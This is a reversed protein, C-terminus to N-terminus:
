SYDSQKLYLQNQCIWTFEIYFDAGRFSPIMQDHLLIFAERLNYLHFLYFKNFKDGIISFSLLLLLYLRYFYTPTRAM